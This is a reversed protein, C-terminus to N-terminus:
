DPCTYLEGYSEILIDANHSLEEEGDAYHKERIGVVFFGARKAVGAFKPHDEFVACEGPSFGLREACFLYIRPDHKDSGIDEPSIYFSCGGSIGLRTYCGYSCSLPTHSAICFPIGRRRVDNLFAGADAKFCIENDYKTKMYAFYEAPGCCARVQESFWFGMSDVLTGDFDFIFAKQSFISDKTLTSGGIQAFIIMASLIDDTLVFAFCFINRKM